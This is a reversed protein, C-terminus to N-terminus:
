LSLAKAIDFPDTSLFASYNTSLLSSVGSLFKGNGLHFTYFCNAFYPMIEIHVM